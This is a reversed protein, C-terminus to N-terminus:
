SGVEADASGCEPTDQLVYRCLEVFRAAVFEGGELVRLALDGGTAQLWDRAFARVRDPAVTGRESLELLLAIAERRNDRGNDRAYPAGGSDGAIGSARGARSSRAVRPKSPSRPANDVRLM